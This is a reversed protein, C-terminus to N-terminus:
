TTQKKFRHCILLRDFKTTRILIEYGYLHCQDFIEEDHWHFQEIDLKNHYDNTRSCNEEHQCNSNYLVFFTLILLCHQQCQHDYLPRNLNLIFKSFFFCFCKLSFRPYQPYKM